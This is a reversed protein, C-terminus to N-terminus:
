CEEKFRQKIEYNVFIMILTLIVFILAISLKINNFRPDSNLLYYIQYGITLSLVLMASFFGIFILPELFTKM